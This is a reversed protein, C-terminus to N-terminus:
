PSAVMREVLQRIIAAAARCAERTEATQRWTEANAQKDLEKLVEAVTMMTSREDDYVLPV